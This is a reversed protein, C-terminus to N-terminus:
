TITCFCQCWIISLTGLSCTSMIFLPMNWFIEYQIIQNCNYICEHQLQYFATLGSQTTGGEAILLTHDWSIRPDSRWGLSGGTIDSLPWTPNHTINANPNLLMFISCLFRSLLVLSILKRKCKNKLKYKVCYLKTVDTFAIEVIVHLKKSITKSISKDIYNYWLMVDYNTQSKM